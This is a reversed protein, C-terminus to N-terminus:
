ANVQAVASQVANPVFAEEDSHLDACRRREGCRMKPFCGVGRQRRDAPRDAEKLTHQQVRRGRLASFSALGTRWLAPVFGSGVM